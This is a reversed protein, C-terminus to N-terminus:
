NFPDNKKNELFYKLEEESLHDVKLNDDYKEFDNSLYNRIKNIKDNCYSL